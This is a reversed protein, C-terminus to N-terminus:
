SLGDTDHTNSTSTDGIFIHAEEDADRWINATETFSPTRDIDIIFSAGDADYYGM